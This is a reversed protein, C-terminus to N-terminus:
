HYLYKIYKKQLSMLKNFINQYFNIYMLKLTYIFLVFPLVFIYLNIIYYCFILIINELLYIIILLFIM